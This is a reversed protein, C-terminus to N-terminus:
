RIISLPESLEVSAVLPDARLRGLAEYRLNGTLIRTGITSRVDFGPPVYGPQLVKVIAAVLDEAKFRRSASDAQQRVNDPEASGVVELRGLARREVM